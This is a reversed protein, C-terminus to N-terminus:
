TLMLTITSSNTACERLRGGLYKPARPVFNPASANAAEGIVELRRIVADQIDDDQLFVAKDFGLLSVEIKRLNDLIHQLYIRDDKM